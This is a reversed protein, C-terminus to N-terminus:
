PKLKVSLIKFPQYPVQITNGRTLATGIERELIDCFSANKFPLDIKVSATGRGGHCEYLRLVISEDDEAKKITDLVLNPDDVSAFSRVASPAAGPALLIPANFAMAEAVVGSDRWTGAHPMVAYAFQHRGMDARPDPYKASRLLSM